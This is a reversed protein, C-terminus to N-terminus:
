SHRAEAVASQIESQSLLILNDLSHNFRNGDLFSVHYSRNRQEQPIGIWSSYVLRSVNYTRRHGDDDVLCVCYCWPDGFRDQAIVQTIQRGEPRLYGTLQNSRDQDVRNKRPDKLGPTYIYHRNAADMFTHYDVIDSYNAAWYKKMTEQPEATYNCEEAQQRLLTVEEETIMRSKRNPHRILGFFASMSLKDSWESRWLARLSGNDDKHAKLPNRYADMGYKEILYDRYSRIDLIEEHTLLSQHAWIDAQNNNWHTRFINGNTDILYRSFSVETGDVKHQKVPVLEPIDEYNILRPQM